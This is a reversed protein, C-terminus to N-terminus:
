RNICASMSVSMSMPIPMPMSMFMSMKLFVILNSPKVIHHNPTM